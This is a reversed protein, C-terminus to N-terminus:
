TCCRARAVDTPVSLRWQVSLGFPWNVGNLVEPKGYRFYVDEFRIEGQFDIKTTGKYPEVAETSLLQYLALLSQHGLVIILRV